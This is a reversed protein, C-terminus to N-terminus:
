GPLALTFEEGDPGRLRVGRDEDVSLVAFGFTAEGAGVLFVGAPTALAALLENGRRVLGVLHIPRAAASPAPAAQSHEESEPSRAELTSQKAVPDAYRFPDRSPPSPFLEALSGPDLTPVSRLAGAPRVLPAVGPGAGRSLVAACLLAGLAVLSLRGSM